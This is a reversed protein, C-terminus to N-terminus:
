KGLPSLERLREVVNVITKATYDIEKMTNDKGISIRLSGHCKEHPLGLARLVHSPELDHTSCASGTSAAIGKQDLMLLISEGEIYDFGYNANGALRKTADGNLWSNEIKLVKKSLANRLKLEHAANKKMNDFAMETAKAFGVIGAVNETGSRLKMEQGGGHILPTINVHSKM